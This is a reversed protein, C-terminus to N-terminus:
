EAEVANEVILVSELRGGRDLGIGIVDIRVAEPPKALAACYEATLRRLRQQKARTISELAAGASAGRRLRVEVIVLCADRRAVLDIEGSPLRVNRALITYGNRELHRAALREGAAGLAKRGDLPRSSEEGSM